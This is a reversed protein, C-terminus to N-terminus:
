ALSVTLPNYAYIESNRSAAEDRHEFHARIRNQDSAHYLDRNATSGNVIKATRGIRNRQYLQLADSVDRKAELSRALVAGDEIAMAAGQALYPLTAHVADGLLTVRRSSWNAVSPRFYLSWRYCEDRDAADIINQIEENWGVFEQKLKEWPFKAIWSEESIETTEVLGVFNLLEGDRLFYSVVHKGPGMWVAMEREAHFKLRNSPVVLRWASDGTYIPKAAGLLQARITSKVGDAGVLVDGSATSGNHLRITVGTGTEEYFVVRSNLRVVAPGVARLHAAMTDLLDARHFQCYPAGHQREHAEALPIRSIIEGSDHLRFVYASPKVWLKSLQRELGHSVLVHMANASLQIGAGIELLASAQEYVEVEFGSKLLSLATSIGGIGGGVILVKTM